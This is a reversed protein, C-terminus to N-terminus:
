YIAKIKNKKEFISYFNLFKKDIFNLKEFRDKKKFKGGIFQASNAGTKSNNGKKTKSKIKEEEMSSVANEIKFRRCMPCVLDDIEEICCILHVKHGCRFLCVTEKSEGTFAKNCEDCKSINYFNGKQIFKSYKDIRGGVTKFLLKQACQLINKLYSYSSLIQMLLSKFEKLEANKYHYTVNDIIKKIGVYSNMNEILEKINASVLKQYENFDKALDERKERGQAIKESIDYFIQLMDFWMQETESEITKDSNNQLVQVCRALNIKHVSIANNYEEIQNNNIYDFMVDLHDKLLRISLKLADQSAGTSNYLYIAADYAKYELCKSLSSEVPYPHQKLNPLIEDIKNLKCLLDIQKSLLSLYIEAEADKQSMDEEKYNVLIEEIYALQLDMKDKLKDIILINDGKYWQYCLKVVEQISLASLDPIRELIETKLKNLKENEKRDKVQKLVNEIFKFISQVRNEMKPNKLYTDLCQIYEGTLNLLFIEVQVFSTNNCLKLLERFESMTFTEKRIEIMKNIESSLNTTFSKFNWFTNHLGFEDEEQNSEKKRSDYGLLYEATELIVSKDISTVKISIKAIFEYMDQLIFLKNLSKCKAIIMSVITNINLNEIVKNNYLISECLKKQKEYDLNFIIVNIKDELFFRSLLIFFTYSDFNILNTLIEDSLLWLFLKVILNSFVDDKIIVKSPYKEGNLCLDIYWMLKHGIYQKSDKLEDITIKNLCDSYSIFKDDSIMNSKLFFDYIRKIPFFYDEDDNNMYIYILPDILNNQSCIDKIEETNICQIDLHTLIQSLINFKQKKVYLEVIKSITNRSLRQNRIKDCLIFPELKEIFLESCGKNDFITQIQNQLYAVDNIELCFEICINICKSMLEEYKEKKMTAPDTGTHIVTYQLILGKLIYGVKTKRENENIPIDALTINRGHYIDLGLALANNWESNQQLNNLCQEWNLLKGYHFHKKGLIYLTKMQSIILNNYTPKTIKTDKTGKDPIYAQFLIDQDIIQADELEPHRDPTTQSIPTNDSNDFKVEGNTLLGTNLIKFYKHMDFIYLISNSIFGMRLIQTINVYHGIYIPEDAGEENLPLKYIYIIKGWSIAILRHPKTLDIGNNEKLEDNENPKSRPPYGYGFCIDPIYYNNLYKPKEFVFLVKPEPEIQYISISELSGFAVVVPEREAEEYMMREENTLKLIEILFVPDKNTILIESDVSTLFFGESITIKKVFGNLDSSLMEYEKNAVRIFKLAIVCDNHEDTLLKKCKSTSLEWLAIYGNMYGSILYDINESIDMCVVGRKNPEFIEDTSLAKYEYEKECSYMRIKGLNNGTFIVDQSATISTIMNGEKFFRSSLTTKPLFQLVVFNIKSHLQYQKLHFLSEKSENQNKMYETEMYHIFEIPNKFKPLKIEKKTEKKDGKDPGLHNLYNELGEGTLQTTEKNLDQFSKEKEALFDLKKDDEFSAFNGPENLIEDINYKGTELNIFDDRTKEKLIEDIIEQDKENM